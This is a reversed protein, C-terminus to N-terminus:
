AVTREHFEKGLKEVDRENVSITIGSDRCIAELICEEKMQRIATVIFVAESFDKGGPLFFQDDIKIM